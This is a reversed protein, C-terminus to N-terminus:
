CKEFSGSWIWNVLVLGRDQDIDQDEGVEAIRVEVGGGGLSRGGMGDWGLGKWGVLFFTLRWTWVTGSIMVINSKASKM